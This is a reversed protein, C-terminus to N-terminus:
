FPIDDDMAPSAAPKASQMEPPISEASEETDSNLSDLFEKQEASTARPVLEEISPASSIMEREEDTLARRKCRLVQLNYEVNFTHPGTKVKKFAIDWGEDPDTPDGLDEAANLIQEFLKKKLNIVVPKKDAMDYGQVVYAWSCNLDPYQERVYDREKNTFKEKDRDFSLCEVPIDKNNKGKIWYVYRPVVDGFIRIVQEGDKFAYSAAGKKAKGSVDGFKIAM